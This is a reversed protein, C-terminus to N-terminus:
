ICIYVYDYISIHLTSIFGKPTYVRFLIYMYVYMYVNMYVYIYGKYM